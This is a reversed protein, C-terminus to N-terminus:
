HTGTLDHQLLAQEFEEETVDPAPLHIPCPRVPPHKVQWPLQLIDWRDTTLLSRDPLHNMFVVITPPKIYLVQAHYRKEYLAGSKISELAPFLKRAISEQQAARPLDIAITYKQGAHVLGHIFQMIDDASDCFAPIFKANHKLVLWHAFTSKGTNGQQDIICLIKRNDQADMRRKAEQQWPLLKDDINYQPDCYHNSGDKDTWPGDLRGQEKFVYM